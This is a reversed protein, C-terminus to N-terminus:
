LENQYINIKRIARNENTKNIKSSGILKQAKVQRQQEDHLIVSAEQIPTRSSLHSLAPVDKNFSETLQPFNKEYSDRISEAFQQMTYDAGVEHPSEAIIRSAAYIFRSQTIENNIKEELSTNSPNYNLPKEMSNRAQSFEQALVGRGLGIFTVAMNEAYFLTKDAMHRVQETTFLQNDSLAKIGKSTMHVDTSQVSFVKDYTDEASYMIARALIENGANLSRHSYVWNEVANGKDEGFIAKMQNLAARDSDIERSLVANASGDDQWAANFTHRYEHLAMFASLKKPNVTQGDSTQLNDGEYYSSQTLGSLSSLSGGLLRPDSIKDLDLYVGMIDVKNQQTGDFSATQVRVVGAGAVLINENSTIMNESPIKNGFGAALNNISKYIADIDTEQIPNNQSNIVLTKKVFPNGYAQLGEQSVIFGIKENSQPDFPQASEIITSSNNNGTYALENQTCAAMAISCSFITAAVMGRSSGSVILKDQSRFRKLVTSLYAEDSNNTKTQNTNQHFESM